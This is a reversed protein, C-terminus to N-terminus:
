LLFGREQMFAVPHKKSKSRNCNPCLIQLNSKDNAGGLYLPVIHDVDYKKLNIHCCACKNRQMKLIQTIDSSTHSGHSNRLRARYTRTYSNRQEQPINELRWKKAREKIKEVNALYHKRKHAAVKQPNKAAYAKDSAKKAEPNKATFNATKERACALCVKHKTSRIEIHGRKCPKGTFYHSLGASMAESRLVIQMEM